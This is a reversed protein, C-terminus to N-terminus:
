STPMIIGMKCFLFYLVLSAQMKGLSMYWLWISAQTVVFSTYKRQEIIIPARGYANLDRCGGPKEGNGDISCM